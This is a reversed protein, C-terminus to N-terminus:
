RSTTSHPSPSWPPRPRSLTALLAPLVHSHSRPAPRLPPPQSNWPYAAHSAINSTRQKRTHLNNTLKVCQHCHCLRSRFATRPQVLNHTFLQHHTLHPSRQKQSISMFLFLLRYSLASSFHRQLSPSTDKCSDLELNNCYRHLCPHLYSPPHSTQYTHPQAM